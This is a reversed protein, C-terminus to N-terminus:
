RGIRYRTKRSQGERHVRGAEELALVASRASSLKIKVVDAIAAITDAGDAIAGLVLKSTGSKGSLKDTLKAIRKGNAGKALRFPLPVSPERMGTVRALEDATATLVGARRRLDAIVAAYDAAVGGGMSETTDRV